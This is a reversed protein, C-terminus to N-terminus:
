LTAMLRNPYRLPYNHVRHAVFALAHRLLLSIALRICIAKVLRFGAAKFGVCGHDLARTDSMNTSANWQTASTAM